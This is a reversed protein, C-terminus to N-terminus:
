REANSPPAATQPSAKDQQPAAEQSQALVAGPSDPLESLAVQEFPAAKSPAALNQTEGLAASPAKAEQAFGNASLSLALAGCTVTVSIKNLLATNFLRQM